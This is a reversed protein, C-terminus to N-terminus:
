DAYFNLIGKEKLQYVYHEEASWSHKKWGSFQFGALNIEEFQQLTVIHHIAVIGTSPYNVAQQALDSLIKALDNILTKTPASVRHGQKELETKYEKAYNLKTRQLSLLYGLNAFRSTEPRSCLIDSAQSLAIQHLITGNKLNRYANRGCVNFWHEAAHKALSPHMSQNFVVRYSAPDITEKLKNSIRGNGLVWCVKTNTM